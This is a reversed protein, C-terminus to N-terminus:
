RCAERSKYSTNEAEGVQRAECEIDESGYGGGHSYREELAVEIDTFVDRLSM